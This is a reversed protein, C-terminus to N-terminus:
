RALKITWTSWQLTRALAHFDCTWPGPKPDFSEGKVYIPGKSVDKDDKNEVGANWAFHRFIWPGARCPRQLHIAVWRAAHGWRFRRSCFVSFDELTMWTEELFCMLLKRTPPKLGTSFCYDFQSDEGPLSSFIFDKFGGGLKPLSIRLLWWNMWCLGANGAWLNGDTSNQATTGDERKVLLGKGRRPRGVNVRVVQCLLCM